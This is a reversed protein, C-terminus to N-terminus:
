KIQNLANYIKYKKIKTKNIKTKQLEECCKKLLNDIGYNKIKKISIGITKQHIKQEFEKKRQEANEVDMKSAVVIMSRNLLKKNYKKIENQVVSFNKFPQNEEMSVVHIIIRCREIHRLFELGLGKGQSADEILGPLDAFTYSKKAYSVIGLNPAITTFPYNAIKPKANSIISLLTSKGANPMGIIGVDAILKLELIIKKHEGPQGDEAIKPMKNFSSKFSANGRGGNGGKVIIQKQNPKNLDFLINKTEADIILTGIPIKIITDEGNKGNCNKTKGDEGNNAIITKYKALFDLSNLNNDTEFFINGGNGGNGGCPGFKTIYRNKNFAVIGNGGNGGCVELEYYDLFM